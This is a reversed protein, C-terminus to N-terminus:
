DRVNRSLFGALASAAEPRFMNRVFHDRESDLHEPLSVNAADNLLDKISTLVRPARENLRQALALASPLAQGGDALVSVLGLEHLRPAGVGEGLMLWLSALQRPVARGLHWSAGGDPSLALASYAAIFQADRAAVVFDCALALSFGAGAAVGEVAAIVPKPCTRITEIWNHFSEVRQAQLEPPRQRNDLLAAVNGGACFWAGEGVIVISRVDPNTEAANLAEVGAAYIHPELANRATPNSLTLVMTQGDSTSKLEATM